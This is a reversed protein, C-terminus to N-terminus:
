AKTLITWHLRHHHILAWANKQNIGVQVTHIVCCVLKHLTFLITIMYLNWIKIKTKHEFIRLYILESFTSTLLSFFVRVVCYFYLLTVDANSRAKEGNSITLMSSNYCANKAVSACFFSCFGCVSQLIKDPLSLCQSYNWHFVNFPLTAHTLWRLFSHIFLHGPWKPRRFQAFIIIFKMFPSCVM